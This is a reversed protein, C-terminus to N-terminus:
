KPRQGSIEAPNLQMRLADNPYLREVNDPTVLQHKIIAAAPVPRKSLINLALAILEPGYNEPSFTVSGILRTRPRRLETRGDPSAGHGMGACSEARGAEEFARLGGVVTTDNMGAILVRRAKSARLHRRAAALGGSYSSQASLVVVRYHQAESLTERIGAEVGVLRSQPVPGIKPPKLILAEDIRGEWHQNVWRGLARGAMLGAQFNNAGYYTAGPHPYGIAILPVGAGAFKTAIAAAIEYDPQYVFALNVEARILRDANALATKASSRNELLVLDIGEKEAAQRMSDLVEEAFPYGKIRGAFGFKLGSWQIPRVKPQYRDAAARSVLGGAELSTLLRFATTKHLGTRQALDTLRLSEGDHRFARLLEAARVVSRVLYQDDSVLRGSKKAMPLKAEHVKELFGLVVALSFQL